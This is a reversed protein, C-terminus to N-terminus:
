PSYRIPLFTFACSIEKSIEMIRNILFKMGLSGQKADQRSPYEKAGRRMIKLKSAVRSENKGRADIQLVDLVSPVFNQRNPM